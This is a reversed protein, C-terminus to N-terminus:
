HSFGLPFPFALHGGPPVPLTATNRFADRTQKPLIPRTRGKANQSELRLLRSKVAPETSPAGPLCGPLPQQPMRLVWTQLTCVTSEGVGCERGGLRSKPPCQSFFFCDCRLSLGYKGPLSNGLAIEGGGGKQFAQKKRRRQSMWGGYGRSARAPRRAPGLLGRSLRPRSASRWPNLRRRPPAPVGRGAM